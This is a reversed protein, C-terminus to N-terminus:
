HLLTPLLLNPGHKRLERLRVRLQLDFQTNALATWMSGLDRYMHALEDLESAQLLAAAKSIFAAYLPRLAGGGPGSTEIWSYGQRLGEYQAPGCSRM